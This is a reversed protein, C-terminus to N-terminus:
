RLTVVNPRVEQADYAGSRLLDAATDADIDGNGKLLRGAIKNSLEKPSVAALEAAVFVKEPDFNEVMDTYFDELCRGVYGGGVVVRSPNIALLFELLRILTEEHLYGRTATRSEMYIVSDSGNTAENLYRAYEDPGNRYRYAKFKMYNKPLVLIILRGETSKYELFDRLEREQSQLAAFKASVPKASLFREIVNQKEDVGGAPLGLQFFPFYAPHVIFYVTGHDLYKAYQDFEKEAITNMSRIKLGAYSEKIWEPSDEATMNRGEIANILAGVAPDGAPVSVPPRILAPNRQTVAIDSACATFLSLAIVWFLTKESTKWGRLVSWHM